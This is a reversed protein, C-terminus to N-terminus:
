FPTRREIRAGTVSVQLERKNREQDDIDAQLDEQSSYTPEHYGAMSPQSSEKLELIGDIFERRTLEGSGDNDLKFFITMLMSGSSKALEDIRRLVDFVYERQQEEPSVSYIRDLAVELEDFTLDGDGNPDVYRM